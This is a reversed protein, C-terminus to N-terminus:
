NIKRYMTIRLRTAHYNFYRTGEGLTIKKITGVGGDGSIIELSQIAQPLIKPIINDMDLLFGKYMTQAPVSSEVEVNTTITGM